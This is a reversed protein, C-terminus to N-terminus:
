SLNLGDYKTLILLNQAQVFLRFSNVGIKETVSKPLSYGFSINDLSIFDGDELFRSTAHGTLITFTNTSAWLRPTM